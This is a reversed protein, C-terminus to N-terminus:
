NSALYIMSGMISVSMGRLDYWLIGVVVICLGVGGAGCCVGGDDAGM